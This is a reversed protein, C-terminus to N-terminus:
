VFMDSGSFTRRSMPSSAEWSVRSPSSPLGQERLAKALVDRRKENERARGAVAEYLLELLAKSALTMLEEMIRGREEVCSLPALNSYSVSAM